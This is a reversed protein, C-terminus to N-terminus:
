AARQRRLPAILGDAQNHQHGGMSGERLRKVSKMKQQLSQAVWEIVVVLSGADNRTPFM